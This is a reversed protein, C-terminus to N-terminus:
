KFLAKRNRGRKEKIKEIIKRVRRKKHETEHPSPPNSSIQHSFDSRWFGHNHLHPLQPYILPPHM